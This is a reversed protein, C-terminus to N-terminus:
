PDMTLPWSTWVHWAIPPIFSVVLPISYRTWGWRFPLMIRILCTGGAIAFVSALFLWGVEDTIYVCNAASDGLRNACERYLWAWFRALCSGTIYITMAVALQTGLQHYWHEPEIWLWQPEVPKETARKFIYFLLAAMVQLLLLTWVGNMLELIVEFDSLEEVLWEWYFEMM